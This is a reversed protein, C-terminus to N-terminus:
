GVPLRTRRCRPVPIGRGAARARRRRVRDGARVRPGPGRRGDPAHLPGVDAPRRGWRKSRSNPTTISSTSTTTSPTSSRTDYVEVPVNPGDLAAERATDYNRARATKVDAKVSNKYSAAVANRVSEWEDFYGEYVRQRFERDPRKLLNTVNSQTIEVAEGEPDEVTPFEMDANSLMNYVEGTAGMVEGLDALLAEVEASRTHPTEDPPCRRRLSRLDRPRSRM